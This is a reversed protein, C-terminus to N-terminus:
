LTKGACPLSLSRIRFGSKPESIQKEAEALKRDREIRQQPLRENERILRQNEREAATTGPATHGGMLYLAPTEFGEFM